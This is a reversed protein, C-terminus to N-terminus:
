RLGRSAKLEEWIAREATEAPGELDRALRELDTEQEQLGQGSRKNPDMALLMRAQEELQGQLREALRARNTSALHWVAHALEHGLVEAYRENKGLGEFPIFGDARAAAPGTSTRDIARLNLLIVGEHAEGEPDVSRVEFRGAFYGKSGAMEVFIAHRSTDVADWLQRLTPHLPQGDGDEAMVLEEIKQWRELHKGCLRDTRLGSTRSSPRGPVRDAAETEINALGHLTLFMSAGIVAQRTGM